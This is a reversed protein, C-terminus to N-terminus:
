CLEITLPSCASHSTKKMTYGYKDLNAAQKSKSHEFKVSDLVSYSSSWSEFKRGGDAAKREFTANRRLIGIDNGLDTTARTM